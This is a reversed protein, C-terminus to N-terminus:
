MRALWQEPNHKNTGEYIQFRVVASQAGRETYVKGIIDRVSVRDGTKVTVDVLNSYVTFYIGHRVIVFMNNGPIGGITSVEGDFVVRIDANGVTTIQVGINNLQLTPNLPDREGHKRTIQGRETPWPLRGRNERFNNSTLRQDPTLREYMNATSTGLRNTEAAILRDIEGQLRREQQQQAALRTNLTRGQARLRSVERDAEAKIALLRAGEQRQDALLQEKEARQETLQEIMASLEEQLVLIEAVQKKRFESYQQFYKMRRYAENFDRSSLIYILKNYRGRNKYAQYVLRSYEDKMREIDNTLRSITAASETIQRDTYAIEANINAILRTYQSVQVNLLDLRTVSQELERVNENLFRRTAEIERLVQRRQDELNQRTQSYACTYFILAAMIFLLRINGYTNM